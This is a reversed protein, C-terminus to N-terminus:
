GSSVIQPIEVFVDSYGACNATIVLARGAIRAMPTWPCHDQTAAKM